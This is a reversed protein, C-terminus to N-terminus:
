YARAHAATKPRAYAPEGPQGGGDVDLEAPSDLAPLQWHAGAADGDGEGSSCEDGTRARPREWLLGAVRTAPGASSLSAAPAAHVPLVESADSRLVRAGGAAAVVPPSSPLQQMSGSGGADDPVSGSPGGSSIGLAHAHVGGDGLDFELTM